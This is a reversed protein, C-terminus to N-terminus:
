RIPTREKKETSVNELRPYNEGSIIPDVRSAISTYLDERIKENTIKEAIDVLSGLNKLEQALLKQRQIANDLRLRDDYARWHLLKDILSLVDKVIIEAKASIHFSFNGEPPSNYSFNIVKVFNYRRLNIQANYINTGWQLFAGDFRMIEGSLSELSPPHDRAADLIHIAVVLREIDLLLESLAFPQLSDAHGYKFSARM